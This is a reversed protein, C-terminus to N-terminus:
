GIGIPSFDKLLIAALEPPIKQHFALWYAARNDERGVLHSQIKDGGRNFFVGGLSPAM